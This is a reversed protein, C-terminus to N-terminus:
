KRRRRFALWGAAALGLLAFSSPEPVSATFRVNDIALGDDANAALQPDSWQLWLEAGPEWDIGDITATIDAVRGAVNGDVVNGSTGVGSFVPSTFNLAAVGNFVANTWDLVGVSLSYGFSLTEPSASQGDRWQEGDYTVTFKSLAVGTNNVLRVAIRMIDGDNATVASGINGLAKEPNAANSNSFAWFGGTNAGTGFRIRQHGNAGGETLPGLPHYLYWGPVSIRTGAVTTTDDAWGSTYLGTGTGQLNANSPPDTPLSDFNESYLSDVTSYSIGAQAPLCTSLALGFLLPLRLCLPLSNM